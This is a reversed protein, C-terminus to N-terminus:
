TGIRGILACTSEILHDRIPASELGVQEMALLVGGVVPPASLRVLRAFPAESQIVKKMPGIVMDGMEYISGVLVVEFERNQIGLQRIVALATNGLESGAWEIISCAVPDGQTAVNFVIPAHDSSILYKGIEIGEILSPTDAAGTLQLFAPTLETKPGRRTWEYAIAVLAREVLNGGGGYEGYGVGTVRGINHNEDWGWCNTGTGAVVAIGWGQSSGALLGIITDNVAEIPASIGLTQIADLTPQREGPWDYGAVGFGSATIDERSIGAMGLSKETVAQLARQLGDYGVSEHNGPGFVGFGLANGAADAILAHSKTGGIDVGLFYSGM